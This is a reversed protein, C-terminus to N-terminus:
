GLGASLFRNSTQLPALTTPVPSVSTNVVERVRVHGLGNVLSKRIEARADMLKVLM